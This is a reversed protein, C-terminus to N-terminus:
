ERAIEEDGVKGTGSNIMKLVGLEDDHGRREPPALRPIRRATIPISPLRDMASAGVRAWENQLHFSILSPAALQPEVLTKKSEPLPLSNQASHKQTTPQPGRFPPM